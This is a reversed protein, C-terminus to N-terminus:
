LNTQYSTDTLLRFLCPTPCTRHALGLCVPLQLDAWSPSAKNHLALKQLNKWRSRMMKLHSMALHSPRTLIDTAAERCVPCALPDFIHHLTSPTHRLCEQTWRSSHVGWVRVSLLAGM